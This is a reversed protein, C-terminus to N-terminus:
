GLKLLMDLKKGNLEELATLKDLLEQTKLTSEHVSALFLLVEDQGELKRGRLHSLLDFTKPAIVKIFDWVDDV